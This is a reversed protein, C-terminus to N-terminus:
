VRSQGSSLYSAHHSLLKRAQDEDSIRVMGQIDLVGTFGAQHEGELECQIGESELMSKLIEAESYNKTAFVIILEENKM